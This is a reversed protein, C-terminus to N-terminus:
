GAKWEPVHDDPGFPAVGTREGIAELDRKVFGESALSIKGDPEVLFLAPVHSVGLANSLPYEDWERDLLMPFAVGFKERFKATGREDDQSIGIIQLTGKSMRDLYPLTMQCVPCSIKFVALLVAGRSLIEDLTHKAGAADGLTFGPAQAGAKLM